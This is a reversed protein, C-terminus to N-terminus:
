EDCEGKWAWEGNNPCYIALGRNVTDTRWVNHQLMNSFIAIGLGIVIGALFSASSDDM